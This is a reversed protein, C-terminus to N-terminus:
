QASGAVAVPVLADTTTGDGLQGTGNGGWCFARRNTTVGCAHDEGASVQTFLLAGVVAVPATHQDLTGDGQTGGRGWCYAANTTAEGCTFEFGATVRSFVLGGVVAVPKLRRPTISGDGIAGFSNRGWCYAREATTVGCAHFVGASVDQFQLTGFIPAPTSRQTKTRDGLQAWDNDGWCYIRDEATVACTFEGGASIRRFRVGEALVRVPTLRNTKTGDGLQGWGNHGWCFARDSANVGCTHFKGADLQRFRRGGAVAIPRTSCPVDFTCPEPGTSAGNGLLGTSNDGWCYARDEATLACTHTDGASITRFRLGGLVAIPRTSCPLSFQGCSEPGTNNGVGLQGVENRGWCYALSDATLGCTHTGGASVQSFSLTAAAAASLTPESPQVPADDRCAPVLFIAAAFLLSRPPLRV